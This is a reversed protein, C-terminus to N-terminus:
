KWCSYWGIGQYEWGAAILNNMEEESFTFHYAGVSANPNHLRHQVAETDYASNFAIGEYNWGEAMLKDKEAVDMTYLHEGTSPQFLRHVPDGTNAPFTFGIGEYQWGHGILNDREETSGTYFHEGTNPNYMRFMHVVQRVSEDLEARNAGCGNCTGDVNNDFVHTKANIKSVYVHTNILFEDTAGRSYAHIEYTDPAYKSYKCMPVTVEWTGDGTKVMDYWTLTVAQDVSRAWLAVRVQTPDKADVIRIKMADNGKSLEATIMMGSKVLAGQATFMYTKGGITNSGTALHGDAYAYYTNGDMEFWGNNVPQGAWYYYWNGNKLVFDGKLLKGNANNFTYVVGDCEIKVAKYTVGNLTLNFTEKGSGDTVFHGNTNTRYWADPDPDAGNKVWDNRRPVGAWYYYGFGNFYGRLTRGDEDFDYYAGKARAEDDPSVHTGTTRVGTDTSFHYLDDGVYVWGYDKQGNTYHYVKGDSKTIFGTYGGVHLGNDFRMDVEDVKVTGNYGTGDDDFYYHNDGEIYWGSTLVGDKTYHRTGGEMFLGTYKTQGKNIGNQGFDYYFNDVKRVGIYRVGNEYYAYGGEEYVWGNKLDNVLTYSDKGASVTAASLTEGSVALAIELSFSTDLDLRKRSDWDANQKPTVSIGTLICVTNTNEQSLAGAQTKWRLTLVLTNSSDVKASELTFLDSTLAINSVDATLDKDLAIKVTVTGSVKDAQQLLLSENQSRAMKAHQAPATIPLELVDFAVTYNTTMPKGTEVVSYNLGDGSAANSVQRLWALQRDGGTANAFDFTAAGKDYLSITIAGTAAPNMAVIAKIVVNKAAASTSATFNFGSVTGAANSMTFTLDSNRIAVPKGAYLAVVPLAVTDGKMVGMTDNEFYVTDPVVVELTKSGIVKGNLSLRVEVKGTKLGTLLGTATISAVSSDSISWTAGAPIAVEDGAANMGVAELQVQTGATLYDAPANLLVHDLATPDPMTTVIIISASVSREFGDSPKNVLSLDDDGPMQALFTTSGGGDLNVADVCGADLMIQAIEQMSGGCSIPEQRGDLTMVVVKGTRTIGIATRSARNGTHSDSHKVALAGDKVLTTGFVDIGESLLGQGKLDYYEETSGIIASGDKLIGFFGYGDHDIGDPAHYEVGEMMLLGAPEGTTMNYGAGNVAAIINYNPIYLDPDSPDSHRAEAAYAQDRVSQMGWGAAPDNDNYNMYVNVYPNSVDATALYYVIQKDDSTSATLKEHTVGSTLTVKQSDVVSYYINENLEVYDGALKCLHDALAYCCAKRLDSLSDTTFTKSNELTAVNANETYSEFIANRIDGRATVGNIRNRLFSDARDADTLSSYYESICKAILGGTYDSAGLQQAIAYGDLDANYEAQSFAGEALFHKETITKVMEELSGSVGKSDALVMLDVIDGAWGAVDAYSASGDNHYYADLVAFLRHLAVKDGNPMQAIGLDRLGTVNVKQEAGANNAAERTQVYSAFKVDEQGTILTWFGSNYEEAGARVYSIALAAPAKGPNEKAYDVAYEELIKLNNMFQQYDAMPETAAAFTQLPMVAILMVLALLLGLMRKMQKM